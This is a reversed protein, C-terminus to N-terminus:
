QSQFLPKRFLGAAAIAEAIQHFGRDSKAIHGVLYPEIMSNFGSSYAYCLTKLSVMESCVGQCMCQLINKFDFLQLEIGNRM